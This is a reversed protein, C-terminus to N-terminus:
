AGAPLIHIIKGTSYYRYTVDKDGSEVFGNECCYDGSSVLQYGKLLNEAYYVEATGTGAAYDYEYDYRYSSDFWQASVQLDSIPTGGIEVPTVGAPVDVYFGMTFTGILWESEEYLLLTLNEGIKLGTHEYPSRVIINGENMVENLGFADMGAKFEEETQNARRAGESSTIKILDGAILGNERIEREACGRKSKTTKKGIKLINNTM